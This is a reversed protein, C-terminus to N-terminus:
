PRMSSPARASASVAATFGAVAHQIQAAAAAHHAHERRLQAARGAVDGEHVAIHPGHGQGVVVGAGVAHRRELVAAELVTLPRLLTREVHGQGVRRVDRVVADRANNTSRARASSLGPPRSNRTVFCGFGTASIIASVNPATSPISRRPYVIRQPHSPIADESWGSARALSETLVGRERKPSTPSRVSFLLPATAPGGEGTSTRRRRSEKAAPSAPWAPTWPSAREQGARVTIDKSLTLPKGDRVLEAKLSYHFEKGVPLEPSTFVRVASTSTTAADDITLKADAPLSM